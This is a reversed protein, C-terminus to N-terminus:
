TISRTSSAVQWSKRISYGIYVNDPCFIHFCEYDMSVTMLFDIRIGNNLEVIIDLGNDLSIKALRGFDIKGVTEDLEAISKPDQSGCLLTSSADSIRWACCYTGMEWKRYDRLTPQPLASDIDGFGLTLSTLSGVEQRACDCGIVGQLISRVQDTM